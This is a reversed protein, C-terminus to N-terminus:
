AQNSKGLKYNIPPHHQQQQRQPPWSFYDHTSFAQSADVFGHEQGVYQLAIRYRADLPKWRKLAQGTRDRQHTPKEM